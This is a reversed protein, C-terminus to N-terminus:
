SSQLDDLLQLTSAWARSGTDIVVFHDGEVETLSADAGAATAREVYDASQRLPVVDDSRGHICRVPVALPIVRAPDALAYREDV